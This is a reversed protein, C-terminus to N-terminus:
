EDDDETHLGLTRLAERIPREDVYPESAYNLAIENEAKLHDYVRKAWDKPARDSVYRQGEGTICEIFAEQERQFFLDEDAVPYERLQDFWEKVVRCMRTPVRQGDILDVAHFSLHDVHGVMWHSAELIFWEDKLSPDSELHKKLAEANVRQRLDSDRHEITPGVSWTKFFDAYHSTDSAMGFSDPEALAEDLWDDPIEVDGDLQPM